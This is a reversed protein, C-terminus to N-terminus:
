NLVQESVKRTRPNAYVLVFEFWPFLECAMKLKNWGDERMADKNAKVEVIRLRDQFVVLFDPKYSMENVKGPIGHVLILKFPEFRYDEIEGALKLPVLVSSEYFKETKNQGAYVTKPRVSRSM